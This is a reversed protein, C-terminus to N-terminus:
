DFVVQWNGDDKARFCMEVQSYVTRGQSLPPLNDLAFFGCELTELNKAFAGGTNRCLVYIKTIPWNSRPINHKNRDLVAILREPEVELGTEERVEKVINSRVTQDADVWGGPLSWLGDTSERVLLIKDSEFVAARSDLKPTPYGKEFKLIELTNEVDIQCARAIMDASIGRIVEFREIDYENTSYALGAQAIASLQLAWNLITNEKEM